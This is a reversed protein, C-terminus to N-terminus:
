SDPILYFYSAFQAGVHMERQKRVPHSTVLQQLNRGKRGHRVTGKFLPDVYVRGEKLPKTLSKTM